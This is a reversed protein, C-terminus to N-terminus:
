DEDSDDSSSSSSDFMIMAPVAPDILLAAPPKTPEGRFPILNAISVSQSQEGDREIVM